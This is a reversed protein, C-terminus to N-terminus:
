IISIDGSEDKILSKARDKKTKCTCWHNKIMQERKLFIYTGHAGMEPSLNSFRELCGKLVLCKPCTGVNHFRVTQVDGLTTSKVNNLM